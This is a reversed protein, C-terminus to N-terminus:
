WDRPQQRRLGSSAESCYDNDRKVKEDGNEELQSTNSIEMNAKENNEKSLHLFAAPVHM